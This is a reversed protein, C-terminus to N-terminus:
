SLDPQLRYFVRYVGPGPADAAGHILSDVSIRLQRIADSSLLNMHPMETVVFQITQDDLESATLLFVSAEPMVAGLVPLVHSSASNYVEDVPAM